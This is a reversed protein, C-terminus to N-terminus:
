TLGGHQQGEVDDFVHDVFVIVPVGVFVQGLAQRDGTKEPSCAPHGRRPRGPVEHEVFDLAQCREGRGGVQLAQVVGRGPRLFHHRVVAAHRAPQARNGAAVPVAHPM